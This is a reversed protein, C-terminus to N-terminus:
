KNGPLTNLDWAKKARAAKAQAEAQAVSAESYLVPDVGFRTAVEVPIVRRTSRSEAVKYIKAPKMSLGKSSAQSNTM